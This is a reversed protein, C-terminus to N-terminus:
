SLVREAKGSLLLSYGGCRNFRRCWDHGGVLWPPDDKLDGLEPPLRRAPNM